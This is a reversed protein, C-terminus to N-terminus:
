LFPPVSFSIILVPHNLSHVLRSFNLSDQLFCQLGKNRIQKIGM